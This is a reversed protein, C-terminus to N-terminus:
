SILALFREKNSFFEYTKIGVLFDRIMLFSNKVTTDVYERIKIM